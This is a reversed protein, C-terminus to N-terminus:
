AKKPKTKKETASITVNRTRVQAPLESRGTMALLFDEATMTVTIERGTDLKIVFEMRHLEAEVDHRRNIDVRAEM